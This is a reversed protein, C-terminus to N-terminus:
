KKPAEAAPAKPAEIGLLEVEFVLTSNPGIKEGAGREGYGLDPPIVLQYKSGTKMLQLAETWGKIVGGVPFKAPQGRKYSSDFETGDILTGKYNVSVTDSAKPMPGSGEKIVKYLLGDATKKVGSEKAFKERYENGAKVNKEADAKRKAEAKAQLDKQLNQMLKQSEDPTLPSPEGALAEKLGNQMMTLDVDLGDRKFNSGIQYGIMYSIKDKDSKLTTAALATVGSVMVASTLVTAKLLSKCMM